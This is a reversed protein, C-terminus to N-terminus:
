LGEQSATEIIKKMNNEVEMAISKLGPDQSLGMLIEMPEIMGIQTKGCDTYVSLRCPLAMNLKLDKALVASALNANCAEFVKCEEIFDKGKSRLTQGINHIHLLSFGHAAIQAELDSCAKEFTKQTEVIFYM